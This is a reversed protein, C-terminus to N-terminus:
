SSSTPRFGPFCSGDFGCASTAVQTLCMGLKRFISWDAPKSFSGLGNEPNTAGLELVFRGSASLLPM